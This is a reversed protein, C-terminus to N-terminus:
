SLFKLHKNELVEPTKNLTTKSTLYFFPLFQPVHIFFSARIFVLWVKPVSVFNRFALRKKDTFRLGIRRIRCLLISTYLVPSVQSM